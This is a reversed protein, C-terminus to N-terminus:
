RCPHKWSLNKKGASSKSMIYFLKNIWNDYAQLETATEGYPLYVPLQIDCKSITRQLMLDSCNNSTYIGGPEAHPVYFSVKPTMLQFSFSNTYAFAVSIAIQNSANKAKKTKIGTDCSMYLM